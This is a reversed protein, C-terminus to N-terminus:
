PYTGKAEFHFSHCMICTSPAQSATNRREVASGHCGRCTDIAPILVDASQTSEVAAHCSSCRSTDHAKHSFNAHPFFRKTLRVPEVRWPARRDKTRTVEHCNVCARREFLDEAVQMAQVRAEAAARDRDARTLARGPRRLRQESEDAEDGLLRASYYEILTQLVAEPKGHEVTRRPDDPDFSLAHCTACHDVMRIPRMRAGGPEPQHCEACEVLRRGSPTVIGAPDLHVAHDFKLNSRDASGADSLLLHQVSWDVDGSESKQPQLLSVKFGPHDLLFDSANELPVDQSLRRHCDACLDQHQRVLQPPENHELHCSACRREGLVTHAQGSVHRSVTHCDMCAADPVREFVNVHCKRCDASVASHASHVPGALWWGDDPLLTSDRAITAFEPKIASLGPVILTIVLVAAALIWAMPRIGFRRPSGTSWDSAVEDQKAEASLEFTMAFDVGPPPDIVRLLNSGVEVVDGAVLRADRQSRGNVEVGALAGTTIHVKGNRDELQAHQLRARRDRLHLMQDTARGITIVTADIIRDNHDAGGAANRTVFRILFHM